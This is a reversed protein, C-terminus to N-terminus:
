YGGRVRARGPQGVKSGSYTMRPNAVAADWTVPNWMAEDYTRIGDSLNMLTVFSSLIVVRKVTPTHAKISRLM